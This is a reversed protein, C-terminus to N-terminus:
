SPRARIERAIAGQGRRCRVRVFFDPDLNPDLSRSDETDSRGRPKDNADRSQQNQGHDESSRCSANPGLDNGINAIEGSLAEAAQVQVVADTLTNSTAIIQRAMGTKRTQQPHINLLLAAWNTILLLKGGILYDGRNTKDPDGASDDCGTRTAKHDHSESGSRPVGTQRDAPGNRDSGIYDENFLNEAPAQVSPEAAFSSIVQLLQVGAALFDAAAKSFNAVAAPSQASHQSASGNGDTVQREAAKPPAL